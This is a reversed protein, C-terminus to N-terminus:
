RWNKRYTVGNTVTLCGECFNTHLDQCNGCTKEKTDRVLNVQETIWIQLDKIQKHLWVIDARYQDMLEPHDGGLLQGSWYKEKDVARDLKFQLEQLRLNAVQLETM